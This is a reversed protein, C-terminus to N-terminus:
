LLSFCILHTFHKFKNLAECDPKQNTVDNQGEKMFFQPALPPYVEDLEGIQENPSTHLNNQFNQKEWENKEPVEKAIYALRHFHFSNLLEFKHVIGCM